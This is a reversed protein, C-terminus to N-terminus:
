PREMQWRAQTQLWNFRPQWTGEALQRYLKKAETLKGTQRLNSARDWLIQANTPEAEFAAAYARDALDPEGRKGLTRGLRVWPGSENPQKGVPTTLYDWALEREGLSQLIRGAAQCAADGDGDLARWRDAVRVVKTLFGDPAAIKLSVLAELQNQYHELLKGYDERRARPGYSM